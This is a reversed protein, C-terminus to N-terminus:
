KGESKKKLIEHLIGQANFIVGCLSDKLTVPGHNDNAPFGQCLLWVAINHRGLGDLYREQTIGKKWNDWDRLNGNSQLRHRGIYDVYYQLVIPSLAKVYSLKTIDGDRTAGSEFQQIQTPEKEPKPKPKTKCDAHFYGDVSSGSILEGEKFKKGCDCCFDNLNSMVM